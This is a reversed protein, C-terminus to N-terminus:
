GIKKFVRNWRIKRTHLDTSRWVLVAKGIICDEPLLGWYRSDKSDFLMDGAMFYYNLRFTYSEMREDGSYVRGDRVSLPQDTEYAILNKYILISVTDIDVTAGAAPIYLPGLDRINWQFHVTDAPFTKWVWAPFDDASMQSLEKQRFLCGLSDAYGKVKYIGNEISFTDGPLAVCRKLYFVNLDMDIADWGVSYPYNFVMVDNRRVARVGKLRKTQVKGDDGRIQRIDKFLRPGPILKTVIIKDGAMVAPEMSPTPIHIISAVVFVRLAVAFVVSVVFVVAYFGTDKLIRVLSKFGKSNKGQESLPPM